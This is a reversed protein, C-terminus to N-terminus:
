HLHSKLLEIEQETLFPSVSIVPLEKDVVHYATTIILDAQSKDQLPLERLSIAAVIEVDPFEAQFRSVLMWISVGGSPCAIIVKSIKKPAVKRNLEKALIFYMTIFAIEEQSLRKSIEENKEIATSVAQWMEPHNKIVDNTFPNAIPLNYKLRAFTRGLHKCLRGFIISDAMRFGTQSVVSEVLYQSLEIARQDQAEGAIEQLQNYAGRSSTQIEASFYALESPPIHLGRTRVLESAGAQLAKYEDSEQIATLITDPLNLVFGRGYRELMVAWYVVLFLFRKDSPRYALSELVRNVLWWADSFQYSASEAIIKKQVQKDISQTTYKDILGWRCIDLLENESFVELLLFVLARRLNVEEGFIQTGTHTQRSLSIRYSQLWKEAEDLDQIITTKSVGMESVLMSLTIPTESTLLLFLILYQRDKDSYHFQFETSHLQEHLRKADEASIALRFGIRPRASLTGGFKEVLKKVHSLNYRVTSAKSGVIEALTNASIAEEQELLIQLIKAQLSSLHENM